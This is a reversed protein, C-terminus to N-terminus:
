NLKGPNQVHHDNPKAKKAETQHFPNEVINLVGCPGYVKIPKM